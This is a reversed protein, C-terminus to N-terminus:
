WDDGTDKARAQTRANDEGPRAMGSLDGKVDALLVPVGADSLQGAMAQLTKTKGTGTAGAVLGHRNLMALPIRVRAAPDVQGDVVVTGLELSGGEVAYGAAIRQAATQGTDDAVVDSRLSYAPRTFSRRTHISQSIVPRSRPRSARMSIAARTVSPSRRTRPSPTSRTIWVSSSDSAPIGSMTRSMCAREPRVSSTRREGTLRRSASSRTSAYTLSNTGSGRVAGRAPLEIAVSRPKRVRSM